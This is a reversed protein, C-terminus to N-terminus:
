PGAALFARDQRIIQELHDWEIFDPSRHKDITQLAEDYISADTLGLRVYRAMNPVEKLLRVLEPPPKTM